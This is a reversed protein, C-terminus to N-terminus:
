ALILREFRCSFSPSHNEDHMRRFQMARRRLKVGQDLDRSGLRKSPQGLFSSVSVAPYFVIFGKEERAMRKTM